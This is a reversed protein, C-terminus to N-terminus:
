YLIQIGYKDPSFVTYQCSLVRCITLEKSKIGSDQYKGDEM